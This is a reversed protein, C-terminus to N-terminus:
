KCATFREVLEAAFEIEGNMFIHENPVFVRDFIVTAEQGGFKANGQDIDTATDEMSRTDCSQRGYIFTLNPHDAPIACIAAYDEDGEVMRGGPMTILWHSNICGTQHMKAGQIVVGDIRREVIHVFLDPDAQESPGLSRDGKPDTMAGGIVFNNAQMESVFAQFREHYNTGHAADIDYTTSYCSNICDMGVCRQFCTGTRQGLARQMKNQMVVDDASTTIHLFRNCRYGSLPSLATGLEPQEQGLRFTEAVANVSPAIMPHDIAEELLEGFLYVKLGRGRLSDLYEEATQIAPLMGEGVPVVGKSHDSATTAAAGSAVVAAAQHTRGAVVAAEVAASHRASGLLYEVKNAAATRVTGDLRALYAKAALSEEESPTVPSECACGGAPSSGCGGSDAKKPAALSVVLDELDRLPAPPKSLQKDIAGIRRQQQSQQVARLM